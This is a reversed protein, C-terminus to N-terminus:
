NRVKWQDILEPVHSIYDSEAQLPLPSESPTVVDLTESLVEDWKLM